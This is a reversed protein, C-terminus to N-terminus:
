LALLHLMPSPRVVLPPLVNVVIIIIVMTNTVIIIIHMTKMILVWTTESFCAVVMMKNASFLTPVFTIFSVSNSTKLM